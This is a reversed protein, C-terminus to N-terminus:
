PTLDLRVKFLASDEECSDAEFNCPSSSLDGRHEAADAMPVPQPAPVVVSWPVPEDCNQTPGDMGNNVANRGQRQWVSAFVSVTAPNDVITCVVTGGVTIEDDSTREVQDLTIQVQDTTIAEGGTHLDYHKPRLWARRTVPRGPCGGREDCFDPSLRLHLTAPGPSCCPCRVGRAVVDDRQYCGTHALFEMDARVVRRGQRQSIHGYFYLEFDDDSCAIDGGLLIRGPAVIEAQDVTLRFQSRAPAPAEAVQFLPATSCSGPWPRLPSFGPRPHQRNILAEPLGHSM